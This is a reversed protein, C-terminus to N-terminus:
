AAEMYKVACQARDFPILSEFAMFRSCQICRPQKRPEPLALVVGPEEQEEECARIVLWKIFLDIPMDRIERQRVGQTGLYRIFEELLDSANVYKNFERPQVPDDQIAQWTNPGAPVVQANKFTITPNTTIQTTNTWLNWTTSASSTPTSTSYWSNLVQHNPNHCTPAM